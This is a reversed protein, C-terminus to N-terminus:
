WASALADPAHASFQSVRQVMAAPAPPAFLYGQGLRCGLLKLLRQQGPTEIGEAVVDLSLGQALALIAQVLSADRRDAEISDVFSRDIKLEDIPFRKLYGLACYGTGFDDLSIRVGLERIAQLNHAQLAGAGILVGETIELVLASAPLDHEALASEVVDKLNPLELQLSALNVSISLEAGDSRWQALQSCATRLVWEGITVIEGTREAAPIFDVPSVSGLEPSNWRALAEYGVPAGSDLNVIPQYAVHMEGRGVAGRLAARLRLQAAAVEGTGM